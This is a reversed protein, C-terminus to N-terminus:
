LSTVLQDIEARLERIATIEFKYFKEMAGITKVKKDISLFGIGIPDEVLIFRNKLNKILESNNKQFGTCDCDYNIKDSAKVKKIELRNSKKLATIIEMQEPTMRHRFVEWYPKVHRFFQMKEKNTFQEWHKRLYPRMANIIYQNQNNEKSLKHIKQLNKILNNEIIYEGHSQDHVLPLIGRRSYLEFNGKYGTKFLHVVLDVATLGAGKIKLIKQDLKEDVLKPNQYNGGLCLFISDYEYQRKRGLLYNKEVDIIEDQIISIKSGLYPSIISNLYEGYYKRPVFDNANYKGPYNQELWEYFQGINEEFAGMDKAKVNLLHHLSQNKYAPGSFFNEENKEIIIINTFGKQALLVSLTTGTFGAGVIVIKKM